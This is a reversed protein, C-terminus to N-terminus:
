EVLMDCKCEEECLRSQHSHCHCATCRSCGLVPHVTLLTLRYGALARLFGVQNSPFTVGIELEDSFAPQLAQLNKMGCHSRQWEISDVRALRPAIFTM